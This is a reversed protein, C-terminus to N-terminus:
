EAVLSGITAEMRELRELINALVELVAYEGEAIIDNTEADVIGLRQQQAFIAFRKKVRKIPKKELKEAELEEIDLGEYGEEEETKRRKKLPM